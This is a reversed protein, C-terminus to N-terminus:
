GSSINFLDMNLNRVTILQRLKKADPKKLGLRDNISEIETETLKASNFPERAHGSAATAATVSTPAISPHRQGLRRGTDELEDSESSDDTLM